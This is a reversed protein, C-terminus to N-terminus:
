GIPSRWTNISKMAQWYTLINGISLSRSACYELDFMLVICLKCDIKRSIRKSM